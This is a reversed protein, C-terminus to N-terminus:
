SPPTPSDSTDSTDSSSTASTGSSDASDASDTADRLYDFQLGSAGLGRGPGSRNALWTVTSGDPLRTRRLYRQASVGIPTVVRDTLYFPGAPELLEAVATLPLVTNGPGPIDMTGRRFVSAAGISPLVPVLPIWNDPPPHELTYAVSPMDPAPPPPPAQNEDRLRALYGEFGDVGVDAAGCVTNEVAWALAATPDRTILIDEIPDADETQGLTPALLIESGVAGSPDAIKFMSWPRSSGQVPYQEVPRILTRVGFTDTVVLTDVTQASGIPSPVPIYFWDNGYVLAFEMVLLKALDVHQADLQGFDTKGDEFGWWRDSPMGHFTVHGPLMTITTYAPDVRTSGTSGSGSTFSYWDLEGGPFSDAELVLSNGDTSAAEVAFAYNLDASQWSDSTGGGSSGSGGAGGSANADEIFASERLAVFDALVAATAPDSAETPLPPNATAGAATAQASRFLAEGDLARGAALSRLALGDAGALYPDPDAAAIPFAARFAEVTAAPLSADDALDEFLLDLQVSGRVKLNVQRREVQTELATANDLAVTAAAQQGGAAPLGPRYGTLARTTLGLAAQVPSGGDEGAFEGVQWQRALFWLPDRVQAQLSRELTADRPQPELRTWTTVSPQLIQASLRAVSADVFAESTMVEASSSSSATM